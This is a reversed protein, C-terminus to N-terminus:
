TAISATAECDNVSLEAHGRLCPSGNSIGHIEISISRKLFPPGKTAPIRVAEISSLTALRQKQFFLSLDQYRVEVVFTQTRPSRHPLRCHLCRSSWVKWPLAHPTKNLNVHEVLRLCWVLHMLLFLLLHIETLRWRLKQM